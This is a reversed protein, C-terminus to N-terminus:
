TCVIRVSSAVHADDQCSCIAVGMIQNGKRVVALAAALPLEREVSKLSVAEGKSVIAVCAALEPTTLDAALCTAVVYDQREDEAREAM